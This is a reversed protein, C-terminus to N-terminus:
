SLSKPPKLEKKAKTAVLYSRIFTAVAKNVIAQDSKPFQRYTKIMNPIKKRWDQRFSQITDDGSSTLIEYLSDIFLARQAPTLERLWNTVTENIVESRDTFNNGYVFDTGSVQWTYIDHQFIGKANSLVVKLSEGHTLFRGIISAQPIYTTIKNLIRKNRHLQFLSDDLGPGDYNNVSALRLQLPLNAALAVYLAIHGGKSHGGLHIKRRPYHQALKQVYDLGAEQAPVHPQFCLNLDEKWGVLTDDTGMFAVYLQHDPLHITIAEFQKETSRSITKVHNSVILKQFRPSNTLLEAFEKDVPWHCRSRPLKAIRSTDQGLTEQPDMNILDFRLYAIRALILHDLPTLPHAHDIKLDGRWRLYDFITMCGNYWM